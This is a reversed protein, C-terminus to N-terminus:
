GQNGPGAAKRSVVWYAMMFKFVMRAPLRQVLKQIQGLYSRHSGRLEFHWSPKEFGTKALLTEVNDLSFSYLHGPHSRFYHEGRLNNPLNHEIPLGLVLLGGAPLVRHCERLLNIPADVHEMVHSCFVAPFSGDAFPLPANLDAALVSMGQQRCAALNPRSVELGVSNQQFQSLYAGKGCGLDLTRRGHFLPLVFQFSTLSVAYGPLDVYWDTTPSASSITPQKAM